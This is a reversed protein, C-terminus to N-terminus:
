AEDYLRRYLEAARTMQRIFSATDREPIDTLRGQSNVYRADQLWADVTNQGVALAAYVHEWVGYHRYLGSLLAAGCRIATEPDYRMGDEPPTKELLETYISRFEEPTLQMLGVEGHEGVANSQFNSKTKLTAWLISEPVSFEKAYTNVYSVYEEKQPYKHREVATAVADFGFGFGVSFALICLLIILHRLNFKVSAVGGM